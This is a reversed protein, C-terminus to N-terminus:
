KTKNIPKMQEDGLKLVNAMAKLILKSQLTPPSMCHLFQVFINRLYDLENTSSLMQLKGELPFDVEELQKRLDTIEHERSALRNEYFVNRQDPHKLKQNESHSRLEDRRLVTLMKRCVELEEEKAEIMESARSRQKHMEQEIEGRQATLIRIDEKLKSIESERNKVSQETKEIETILHRKEKEIEDKQKKLKENFLMMTNNEDRLKTIESITQYDNAERTSDAIKRRYFEEIAQRQEPCCLDLPDFLPEHKLRDFERQLLETLSEEAVPTTSGSRSREEQAQSLEGRLRQIEDNLESVETEKEECRKTMTMIQKELQAVRPDWDSNETIIENRHVEKAERAQDLSISALKRHHELEAIVFKPDLGSNESSYKLPKDAEALRKKLDNNENLLANRSQLLANERIQSQQILVAVSQNVDSSKDEKKNSKELSSIINSLAEKEAKLQKFSEVTLRLKKEYLATKQQESHLAKRIEDIGAM